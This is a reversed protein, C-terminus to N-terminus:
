RIHWFSLLLHFVSGHLPMKFLGDKFFFPWQNRNRWICLIDTHSDFKWMIEYCYIPKSIAIWPLTDLVPKSWILQFSFGLRRRPLSQHISAPTDLTPWPLPQGQCRSTTDGYHWCISRPSGVQSVYWWIQSTQPDKGHNIEWRKYKMLCFSVINNRSLSLIWLCGVRSLLGKSIVSLVGLYKLHPILVPDWSAPQRPM